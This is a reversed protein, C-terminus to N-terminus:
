GGRYENMTGCNKCGIYDPDNWPHSKETEWVPILTEGGLEGEFGCSQCVAEPETENQESMSM